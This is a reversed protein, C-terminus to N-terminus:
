AFQVPAALQTVFPFVDILPANINSQRRMFNLHLGASVNSKTIIVNVWHKEDILYVSM